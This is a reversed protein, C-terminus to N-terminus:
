DHTGEKKHAGQVQQFVAADDPLSDRFAQVYRAFTLIQKREADNAKRMIETVEQTEAPDDDGTLLYRTTTGLVEALGQLKDKVVGTTGAEIKTITTKSTYGMKDALEQQTMRKKIRLLKVRKGFGSAHPASPQSQTKAM